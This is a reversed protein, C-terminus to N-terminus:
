NTLKHYRKMNKFDSLTSEFVSKDTIFNPHRNKCGLAWLFLESGLPTPTFAIGDSIIKDDKKFLKEQLFDKKGFCYDRILGKNDLGVISHSLIEQFNEGNQIDLLKHYEAMELYLNFKQSESSIMLNSGQFEKSIATYFICHTRIQYTSLGKILDTITISRDDRSIQTRGSALAGGWYEQVISDDCFSGENILERLLRPSISGEDNIQDGLKKSAHEFITKLNQNRKEVFEQLENGLYDATPGLLKIILEKTGILSSAVILGTGPDVM